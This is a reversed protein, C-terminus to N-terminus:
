KGLTPNFIFFIQFWWRAKNSKQPHLIAHFYFVFMGLSQANSNVEMFIAPGETSVEEPQQYM